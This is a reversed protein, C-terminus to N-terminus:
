DDILAFVIIPMHPVKHFSHKKSLMREAHFVKGGCRIVMKMFVVIDIVVIILIIILVVIDIFIIFIILIISVQSM